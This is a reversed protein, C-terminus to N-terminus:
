EKKSALLAELEQIRRDKEKNEKKLAFNEKKVEDIEERVTQNEKRLAGNGRESEELSAKLGEVSQPQQTSVDEVEKSLMQELLQASDRSADVM